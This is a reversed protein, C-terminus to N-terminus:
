NMKNKVPNKKVPKYKITGDTMIWDGNKLIITKGGKTKITGDTMVITGNKLTIDKEIAIAQGDKMQMMKGDKMLLGDTKTPSLKTDEKETMKTQAHLPMSLLFGIVIILLRKM